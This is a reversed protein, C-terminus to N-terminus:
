AWMTVIVNSGNASRSAASAGVRASILALAFVYANGAQWPHRTVGRREHSHGGNYSVGVYQRAANRELDTGRQRRAATAGIAPRSDQPARSECEPKLVRLVLLVAMNRDTGPEHSHKLHGLVVGSPMRM